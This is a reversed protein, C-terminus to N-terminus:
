IASFVTRLGRGRASRGDFRPNPNAHVAVRDLGSLRAARAFRSGSVSRWGAPRGVQSARPDIDMSRSVPKTELCKSMPWAALQQCRGSSLHAPLQRQRLAQRVVYGDVLKSTALTRTVVMRLTKVAM